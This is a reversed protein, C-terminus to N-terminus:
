PVRALRISEEIYPAADPYVLKARGVLEIAHQVESAFEVAKGNRPHEIILGNKLLKYERSVIPLTRLFGKYVDIPIVVLIKLNVGEERNAGPSGGFLFEPM